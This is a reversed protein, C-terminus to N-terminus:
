VSLGTQRLRNACDECITHTAAPHAVEDEERRGRIWTGNVFVRKCWACRRAM